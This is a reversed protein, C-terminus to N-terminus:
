YRPLVGVMLLQGKEIGEAEARQLEYDIMSELADLADLNKEMEKTNIRSLIEKGTMM